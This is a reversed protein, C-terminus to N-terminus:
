RGALAAVHFDPERYLGYYNGLAREAGEPSFWAPGGLAEEDEPTMPVREAGEPPKGRGAFGAGMAFLRRLNRPGVRDYTMTEVELGPVIAKVAHPPAGEGTWEREPPTFDVFYIELGAEEIREATARLTAEPTALSGPAVSPLASFRRETEVKLYPDTVRRMMEQPSLAMWERIAALSRDEEVSPLNEEFRELYGAPLLARMPAIPGHNFRKRARSAAYELLAKRLAKERDPHAAEGCGTLQIPHPAREPDREAGVVYLNTMGLTDDALKVRLDIGAEDYRRLLRRAQPDAVSDITLGVKRDLARYHVSNGDRQSLELLGHQLAHELSPGAGLGNTIPTFLPDAPGGEGLDFFHAAAAEVPVWVGEGAGDGPRWRTAEVWQLEREHTYDTTVPLRLKLPNLAPTGENELDAYSATRRELRELARHCLVQEAMEGWGGIRAREETPGYGVGSLAEGDPQWQLVTWVPVGTHDLETIPFEFVREGPAALPRYRRLPAPTEAAPEGTGTQLPMFGAFPKGSLQKEFLRLAARKNQGPQVVEWPTYVPDFALPEFVERYGRVQDPSLPLHADFATHCSIGAAQGVREGEDPDLRQGHEGALTFKLADGCFLAEQDELHLVAHGPTHGGTHHLVAGPLLEATEDFPWSVPPIYGEGDGKKRFRADRGGPTSGGMQDSRQGFHQQAFPLADKQFVIEPRFRRALQWLAGYVHAHSASLADVGGKEAIFDLAAGSYWSAGEFAVNGAPRQVLYGCPGIGVAPENEFLFIGDGVERWRTEVTAEIEEPTRFDWGNTPLPHRLDTCVPCSPPEAFHQQWFGCRTCCHPTLM